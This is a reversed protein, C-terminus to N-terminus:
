IRNPQSLKKRGVTKKEEFYSPFRTKPQKLTHFASLESLRPLNYLNAIAGHPTDGTRVDGNVEMWFYLTSYAKKTVWDSLKQKKIELLLGISRNLNGLSFNLQGTAEGFGAAREFSGM